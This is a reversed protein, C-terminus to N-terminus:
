EAALDANGDHSVEDGDAFAHVGVQEPKVHLAALPDGIGRYMLEGGAKVSFGVPQWSRRAPCNTQYGRAEAELGVRQSEDVSKM